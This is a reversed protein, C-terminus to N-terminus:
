MTQPEHTGTPRNRNNWKEWSIINELSVKKPVKTKGNEYGVPLIAEITIHEPIKLLQKVLEDQYSGVWCSSLGLATIKLLFNEIAAGAQQRAYNIGGEYYVKELEKDDSCAVVIIGADAMWYQESLKSIKDKTEKKEVIIFKLVNNNGAFPAKRTTDIAELVSSWKVRKSSFNHVSRRSNIVKDFDM